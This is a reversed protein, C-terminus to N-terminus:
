TETRGGRCEDWLGARLLALGRCRSTHPHHKDRMLMLGASSRTWSAVALLLNEWTAHLKAPGDLEGRSGIM